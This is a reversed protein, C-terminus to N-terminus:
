FSLEYCRNTNINEGTGKKLVVHPKENASTERTLETERAGTQGGSGSLLNPKFDLVCKM